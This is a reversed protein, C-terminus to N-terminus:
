GDGADNTMLDPPSLEDLDHIGVKRLQRALFAIRKVPEVKLVDVLAMDPRTAWSMGLQDMLWFLGLGREVFLDVEHRNMDLLGRPERLAGADKLDGLAAGALDVVVRLREARNLELDDLMRMVDQHMRATLEAYEARVRDLVDPRVVQNRGGGVDEIM